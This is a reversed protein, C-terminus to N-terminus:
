NLSNKLFAEIFNIICYDAQTAEVVTMMLIIPVGWNQWFFKQTQNM